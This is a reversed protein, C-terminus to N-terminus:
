KGAIRSCDCSSRTSSTATRTWCRSPRTIRPISCRACKKMSSRPSLSATSRPTVSTAASSSTAMPSAMSCLVLRETMGYQMVMARATATAKEIDNHAGTTPDHFVLEEAARGGSCTRCSVLYSAAHFRTSTRSPCYWRTASLAHPRNGHQERREVM